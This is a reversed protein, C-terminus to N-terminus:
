GDGYFCNSNDISDIWNSVFYKFYVIAFLRVLRKVVKQHMPWCSHSGLSDSSVLIVDCKVTLWTASRLNGDLLWCQWSSICTVSASPADSDDNNRTGCDSCRRGTAERCKFATTFSSHLSHGQNFGDEKVLSKDEIKVGWATSLLLM